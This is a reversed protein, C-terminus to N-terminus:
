HASGRRGADRMMSGAIRRVVFRPAMRASQAMMANLAGPIVIARGARMASLAAEVVADVSMWALAPMRSEDIGAVQQFETRVPAPCLCTVTVGHERAEEHVADSFHLVFAKTAAYTANYPLPQFAATSAVNIIGGRRRPVMSALAAHTLRVLARVNLDLEELERDLPLEAFEGVTGFGANNVLVEVDGQRVREEVLSVGGDIALDAPIVAAAVGHEKSLEGALRDLRDKRRAILVLDHGRGALRRAFAEGIGASAGTVVATGATRKGNTAM